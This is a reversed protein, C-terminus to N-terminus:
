IASEFHSISSLSNSIIRDLQSNQHYLSLPFFSAVTTTSFVRNSCHASLTPIFILFQFSFFFFFLWSHLYLTLILFHTFSRTSQIQHHHHPLFFDNLSFFPSLALARAPVLRNNLSCRWCWFQLLVQSCAFLASTQPM